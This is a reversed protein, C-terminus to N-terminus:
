ESALAEVPDVASARRAPLYSAGAAVIALLLAVAAYTPVDLPRVEFLLSSMLRTVGAAAGLGIAIGICAIGLGYRLFSRRVEHQQAGLALRIAIERQRQSVAYSLVGYLGVIGLVLAVAGAIALMVLTFSTRALSADLVDQMTRVSAVPLNPNVSWIAQQVQRLLGETGALPSRIAVTVSRFVSAPDTDTTGPRFVPWYVIAPSPANVGNDRVDQVVGIVDYWRPGLGRIRKGLAAAPTGWLERALNESIMAVPRREHIETWTLDRGDVLRTGSTQFLAPSIFKFRRMPAPEGAVRPQDEVEIGNWVANFGDMPLSSSFGVSSVSPVAALADVIENPMRAVAAAEPVLQQPISLQLTQIQAPDTLGPEVDRLAEFTRIMLGSSVLLVLALAVQAVGLVNQARNRERGHSVSRGGGGLGATIGSGAHKLAPALGLLIGAVAAVAVAFGLCRADLSVEALRPLNTPGIALLVKLAAQALGLGLVGGALGLMVSELLLARSIRWAGAGLAARVALDRERASARVLLLNTVNACAIVLVVAITGMVVWLVNGVNGVVDDKLARLEPGIRWVEAYFNANGGPFPPWSDMWIPLMRAIDANAAAITVGPKLRAVGFFDFTPLLLRSRDFRMPQILDADTDVIRFGAPMVGVIEVPLSNISITSGIATQDGGLRRQWYDYTLVVTPAADPKVDDNSFSRGFLPQVGLTELLGGSVSVTRVEEPEALGTVSATGPVWVGISQFTRNEEAYTFYMSASSRLRGGVDALGAGPATHWVAVLEDSQPYPLPKLLVGNVVSFVTTTAGSGIALTLVAVAAFLRSRILARAAYRVDGGFSELLSV